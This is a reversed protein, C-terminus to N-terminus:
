TPLSTTRPRASTAAGIIASGTGRGKATGTMVRSLAQRAKPWTCQEVMGRQLDVGALADAQDAAVAAALRAQELRQGPEAAEVVARQPPLRRSLM